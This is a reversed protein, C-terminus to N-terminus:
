VYYLHDIVNGGADKVGISSGTLPGKRVPYYVIVAGNEVTGTVQAAGPPDVAVTKANPVSVAGVFAAGTGASISMLKTRGGASIAAGDDYTVGLVLFMDPGTQQCVLLADDLKALQIWQTPSIQLFTAPQWYAPDPLPRDTKAAVCDGVRQGAASARDAKADNATTNPALVQPLNAKPPQYGPYGTSDNRLWINDTPRYSNPLIFVGDGVAAPEASNADGSAVVLNNAGPATVGAYTGDQTTFLLTAPQSGAPPNPYPISKVTVTEKTLQCFVMDTGVRYLLATLGNRNVQLLPEWSSQKQLATWCRSMQYGTGWNLQAGYFSYGNEPQGSVTTRPHPSTPSATLPKSDKNNLTSTVITAGAVLAIVSAAILLPALGTKRRPRADGIETMIRRFAAQRIHDPLDREPFDFPDSM